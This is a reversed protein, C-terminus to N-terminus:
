ALKLQQGVSLNIAEGNVNEDAGILASDIIAAAMARPAASNDPHTSVGVVGEVVSVVVDSLKRQINFQTGVAVIVAEGAMVVFPRDSDKAVTFLAEGSELNLVRIEDSY